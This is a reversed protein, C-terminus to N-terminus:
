TGNIFRLNKTGVPKQISVKITKQTQNQNIGGWLTQNTIPIDTTNEYFWTGGPVTWFHNKTDYQDLYINTTNAM